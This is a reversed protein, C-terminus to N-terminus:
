KISFSHLARQLLKGRDRLLCLLLYPVCRSEPALFGAYMTVAVIRLICITCPLAGCPFAAFWAARPTRLAALSDVRASSEWMQSRLVGGKSGPRPALCNVSCAPQGDTDHCAMKQAAACRTRQRFRQEIACVVLHLLGDADTEPGGRHKESPWCDMCCAYLSRLHPGPLDFTLLAGRHRAGCWPSEGVAAHSPSGRALPCMGFTHLQVVTARDFIKQVIQQPWLAPVSHVVIKTKRGTPM